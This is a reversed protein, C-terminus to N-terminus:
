LELALETFGAVCLKNASSSSSSRKLEGLGFAGGGTVTQNSKIGTENIKYTLYFFHNLQTFSQVSSLKVDVIKYRERKEDKM